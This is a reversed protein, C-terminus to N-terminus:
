KLTNISNSQIKKKLLILKKHLAKDNWFSTARLRIIRKKGKVRIKFLGLVDHTKFIKERYFKIEEIDELNYKKQAFRNKFIISEETIIICNARYKKYLLNLLSLSIIILFLLIFPDNKIFVMFNESMLGRISTYVLLVVFYILNSQWYYDLRQEFQMEPLLEIESINNDISSTDNLIINQTERNNM